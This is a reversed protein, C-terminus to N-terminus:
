VDNTAMMSILCHFLLYLWCTQMLEVVEYIRSILNIIKKATSLFKNGLIPRTIDFGPDRTVLASSELKYIDQDQAFIKDPSESRM